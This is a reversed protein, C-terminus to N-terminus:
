FKFQDAMARAEESTPNRTDLTVLEDVLPILGYIIFLLLYPNRTLEYISIGFVMVFLLVYYPLSSFLMSDTGFCDIRHSPVLKAAKEALRALM